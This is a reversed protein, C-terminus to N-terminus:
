NSNLHGHPCVISYSGYKASSSILQCENESCGYEICVNYIRKEQEKQELYIERCVGSLFVFGFIILVILLKPKM